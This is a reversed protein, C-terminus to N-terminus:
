GAHVMVQFAHDHANATVGAKVFVVVLVNTVLEGIFVDTSPEFVATAPEILFDGFGGSM